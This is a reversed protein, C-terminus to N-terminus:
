FSFLLLSTAVVIVISYGVIFTTPVWIEKSTFSRYKKKGFGLADWEATYIAIKLYREITNIVKFKGTNLQGFSTILSRWAGCLIAGVIGLIAIWSARAVQGDSNQLVFGAVTILAGNLTLFFSNVTQRRNILNESSEVMVKYLELAQTVDKDNELLGNPFLVDLFRDESPQKNEILLAARQIAEVYLDDERRTETDLASYEVLAEHAKNSRMMWASWADHVDSPSVAQGKARLLIAYLRLLDDADQRPVKNAPIQKRIEEAIDDLYM